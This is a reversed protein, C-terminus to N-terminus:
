QINYDYQKIIYGNHDLIKKLRGFSDYKYFVPLNDNGSKSTVGFVPDITNSVMEADEPYFRIDDYYVKGYVSSGNSTNCVFLKIKTVGSYNALNINIKINQWENISNDGYKYFSKLYTSENYLEAIIYPPSSGQTTNKARAELIYNGQYQFMDSTYEYMIRHYAGNVLELMYKGTNLEQEGSQIVKVESSSGIPQWDEYDGDEFGEYLVENPEANVIASSPAYDDLWIYTKKADNLAQQTLIKADNNYTFIEKLKYYTETPVVYAYPGTGQYRDDADSRNLPEDIELAYIKYPLIYNGFKDYVTTSAGILKDGSGTNKRVQQEIIPANIHKTKMEGMIGNTESWSDGANNQYDQPYKNRTIVTHGKSDITTTKTLYKHYDSDYYYNISTLEPNQGNQDYITISKTEINQWGSVTAFEGIFFMSPLQNYMIKAGWVEKLVGEGGGNEFNYDYEEKSQINGFANYVMTEKVLGRQWDTNSPYEFPVNDGNNSYYERPSLYRYYTKGNYGNNEGSKKGGHYITVERYGIHSGMTTEMATWSQAKRFLYYCPPDYSPPEGTKYGSYEYVPIHYALVGSSAGTSTKYEYETIVDNDASIGDNDITKKVRLGGTFAEPTQEVNMIYKYSNAEFKFTTYGGTPYKIKMLSNAGIYTTDTGRDAGSYGTVAPILSTGNAKGNYFGWHDQSSSNRPPLNKVLDPSLTNERYYFTYGMSVQQDASRITLSSLKLRKTLYTEYAGIINTTYASHSGCSFYANNGFIVERTATGNKFFEIETLRCGSNNDLDDRGTAYTLYVSDGLETSISALKKSEIQTEAYFNDEEEEECNGETRTYLREVLNLGYYENVTNYTFYVHEGAYTEIESLFWSNYFEDYDLGSITIKECDEFYYKTGNADTITWSEIRNPTSNTNITWEILIDQYPILHYTINENADVHFVFKGSIGPFNFNFLDPEADVYGGLIDKKTDLDIGGWYNGQPLDDGTQLYGGSFDELGGTKEELEDPLGRMTRSIVGGAMLSWGLGVPGPVDQVRIGSAHYSVAIPVSVSKGQLNFLPISIAPVGTYMNVPINGYRGLSSATPSPPIVMSKSNSFDTAKVMQGPIQYLGAMSLFCIVIQHRIKTRINM